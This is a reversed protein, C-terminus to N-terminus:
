VALDVTLLTFLTCQTKPVGCIANSVAMDEEEPARHTWLRLNSSKFCHWLSQDGRAFHELWRDGQSILAVPLHQLSSLKM